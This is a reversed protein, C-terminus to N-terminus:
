GLKEYLDTSKKGHQTALKAIERMGAARSARDDPDPMTPTPKLTPTDVKGMKPKNIFGNAVGGITSILTVAPGIWNSIGDM